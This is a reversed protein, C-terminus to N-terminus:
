SIFEYRQRRLCLIRLFNHLVCVYERALAGLGDSHAFVEVVVNRSRLFEELFGVLDETEADGVDHEGTRVFFQLLGADGLGGYEEVRHDHGLRQAHLGIGGGSM